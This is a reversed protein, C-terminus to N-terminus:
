RRIMAAMILFVKIKAPEEQGPKVVLIHSFRPMTDAGTSNVCNEFTFIWVESQDDM